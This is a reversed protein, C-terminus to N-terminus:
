LFLHVVAQLLTTSGPSEAHNDWKLNDMIFAIFDDILKARHFLGLLTDGSAAQAMLSIFVDFYCISIFSLSPPKLKKSRSSTGIMSSSIKGLFM